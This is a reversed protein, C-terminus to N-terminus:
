NYLIEQILSMPIKHDTVLTEELEASWSKLFIHIQICTHARVYVYIRM